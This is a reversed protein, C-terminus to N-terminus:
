EPTEPLLSAESLDLVAREGSRSVMANLVTRMSLANRGQRGIPQRINKASVKITLQGDHRVVQITLSSPDDVMLRMVESIAAVAADM